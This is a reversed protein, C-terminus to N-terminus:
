QNRQKYIKQSRKIQENKDESLGTVLSWIIRSTSIERFTPHSLPFQRSFRKNLTFTLNTIGMEPYYDKCNVM